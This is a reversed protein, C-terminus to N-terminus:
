YHAYGHKTTGASTTTTGKEEIKKWELVDVILFLPIGDDNQKEKALLDDVEAKTLASGNITEQAVIEWSTIRFDDFPVNSIPDGEHVLRYSGDKKPHFKLLKEVDKMPINWGSGYSKQIIYEPNQQSNEMNRLLSENLGPLWSSLPGSPPSIASIIKAQPDSHAEYFSKFNNLNLM